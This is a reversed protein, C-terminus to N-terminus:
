TYQQNLFLGHILIIDPPFNFIALTLPTFGLVTLSKVQKVSYCQFSIYFTNETLSEFTNHAQLINNTSLLGQILIIYPPFNFTALTPWYAEDM